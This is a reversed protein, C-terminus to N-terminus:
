PAFLNMQAQLPPHQQYYLASSHRVKNYSAQRNAVEDEFEDLVSLLDGNVEVFVARPKSAVTVALHVVLDAVEGM